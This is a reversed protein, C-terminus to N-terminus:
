EEAEVRFLEEVSALDPAAHNAAIWNHADPVTDFTHVDYAPLWERAQYGDTLPVMGRAAQTSLGIFVIQCAM